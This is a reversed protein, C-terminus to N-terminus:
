SLGEKEQKKGGWLREALWTPVFPRVGIGREEGGGEGEGKFGFRRGEEEGKTREGAMDVIGMGELRCLALGVNGVGGLWRGVSRGKADTRVVDGGPRLRGALDGEAPAYEPRSKGRHGVGAIASKDGEASYLQVPLIRKRVVGRHQTRIVLEQGVYCGKRFDVGGMLDINSEQM